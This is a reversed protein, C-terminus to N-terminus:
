LGREALLVRVMEELESISNKQNLITEKAMEVIQAKTAHKKVGLVGKLNQLKEKFEDRRRQEAEKHSLKNSEKYEENSSLSANSSKKYNPFLTYFKSKINDSSPETSGFCLLDGPTLPGLVPTIAPSLMTGPIFAARMEDKTRQNGTELELTHVSSSPLLAPTLPCLGTPVPKADFTLFPSLLATDISFTDDSDM